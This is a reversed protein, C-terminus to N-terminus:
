FFTGNKNETKKQEKKKGHAYKAGGSHTRCRRSLRRLRFTNYMYAHTQTHTHINNSSRAAPACHPRVINTVSRKRM